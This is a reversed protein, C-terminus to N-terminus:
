AYSVKGNYMKGIVLSNIDCLNINGQCDLILIYFYM